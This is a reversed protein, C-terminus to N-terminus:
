IIIQKQKETLNQSCLPCIDPFLEKFKKQKEALIRQKKNLKDECYDIDGIIDKLAKVGKNKTELLEYKELLAAIPKEAKTLLENEAISTETNNIESILYTINSHTKQKEELRSHYSLIKEILKEAQLVNENDSIEQEIEGISKILEKLQTSANQTQKLKAEQKEVEEVEIEFKDLYEFEKYKAQKEKLEAQKSKLTNNLSTLWGRVQKQAININELHAIKNFHNAVEGPSDSILFSSDHQSQINVVDMNLEQKIEEPVDAGFATFKTNNLRYADPKSKSWEIEANETKVLISTKGGWHSCFGDGFPRNRLVKNIARMISSKGSDTTGVIINVGADLELISKEHSQFNNIEIRQLM